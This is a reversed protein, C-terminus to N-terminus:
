DDLVLAAPSVGRQSAAAQQPATADVPDLSPKKARAPPQVLVDYSDAGKDKIAAPIEDLQKVAILQLNYPNGSDSLAVVIPCDARKALRKAQKIAHRRGLEEYILADLPEFTEGTIKEAQATLDALLKQDGSYSNQGGRGSNSVYLPEKHGSVKIRAEFRPTEDGGSEKIHTLKWDDPFRSLKKEPIM